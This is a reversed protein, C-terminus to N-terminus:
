FLHTFTEGSKAGTECQRLSPFGAPVRWTLRLELHELTQTIEFWFPALDEESKFYSVVLITLPCKLNLPSGVENDMEAEYLM